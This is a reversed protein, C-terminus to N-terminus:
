KSNAVQEFDIRYRATLFVIVKAERHGGKATGGRGRLLPVAGGHFCCCFLICFFFFASFYLLIFIGSEALNAWASASCLGCPERVM